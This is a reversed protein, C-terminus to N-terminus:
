RNCSAVLSWVVSLQSPSAMQGGARLHTSFQLVKACVARMQWRPVADLYRVGGFMMLRCRVSRRFPHRLTLESDGLFLYWDDPAQNKPAVTYGIMSAFDRARAEARDFYVITEQKVM